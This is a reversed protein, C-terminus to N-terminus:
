RPPGAGIGIPELGHLLQPISQRAKELLQGLLQLVARLEAYQVPDSIMLDVVEHLQDVPGLFVFAVRLIVLERPCAHLIVPAGAVAVRHARQAMRLHELAGLAELTNEGEVKCLIATFSSAGGPASPVLNRFSERITRRCRGIRDPTRSAWSSLAESSM